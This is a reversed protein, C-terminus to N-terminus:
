HDRHCAQYLRPVQAAMVLPDSFRSFFDGIGGYEFSLMHANGWHGERVHELVWKLWPWDEDTLALHDMLYGDWNHIGTFHLEKLSKLPLMQIYTKPDMGYSQAAIRAHSVDLLFGCGTNNIIESITEPDASGMLNTNENNRFPINEAIVRDPGFASCLKQVHSVFRDTVEQRQKLGPTQNPPIHPMEDAKIGLHTNILNTSTNSLFTNIVGIDPEQLSGARLNFHVKAPRLEQAEAIMDPWPPTKFFDVEIKGSKVLAAAQPSYNICFKM